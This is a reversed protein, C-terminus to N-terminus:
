QTEAPSFCQPYLPLCDLGWGVPLKPKWLLPPAPAPDPFLLCITIVRHPLQQLLPERFFTSGSGLCQSSLLVSLKLIWLFSMVTVSYATTRQCVHGTVLTVRFPSFLASNFTLTLVKFALTGRSPLVPFPNLRAPPRPARQNAPTHGPEDGAGGEARAEGVRPGAPTGDPCPVPRQVSDGSGEGVGRGREAPQVRQLLQVAGPGARPASM